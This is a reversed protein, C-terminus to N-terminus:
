ENFGAHSGGHITVGRFIDTRRRDPAANRTQFQEQLKRNKHQMYTAFSGGHQQSATGDPALAPAPPPSGAPLCAGLKWRDSSMRQVSSTM